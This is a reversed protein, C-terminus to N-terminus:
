FGPQAWTRNGLINQVSQVYGQQGPNNWPYPEYWGGISNWNQCPVYSSDGWGARVGNPNDFYFRVTAAQFDINFATSKWRLPESGTGSSNGDPHDWRIQTIGLSQCVSTGSIRSYAPYNTSNGVTTLDGCGNGTCSTCTGGPPMQYWDSEQIYEARLWDPPIGWKIAGWQICEDTNACSYGGTVNAMYPNAQPPTQGYLNTEALFANLETQSPVYHNPTTNTAAREEAFVNQVLAAAAADSLPTLVGGNTCTVWGYADRPRSDTVNSSIKLTAPTDWLYAISWTSDMVGVQYTYTGPSTPTWVRGWSRQQGAAFSQGTFYRQWIKQNSADHIELTVNGNSLSGSVDTLTARLLISQGLKAHTPTAVYSGSFVPTPVLMNSVNGDLNNGTSAAFAGSAELALSFISIFPTTIFRPV